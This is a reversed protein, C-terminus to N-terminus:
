STALDAYAAELSAIVISTDRVYEMQLGTTPDAWVTCNPAPLVPLEIPDLQTTIPEKLKYTVETINDAFWQKIAAATTIGDVYVYLWNKDPTDSGARWASIGESGFGVGDNNRKAQFRDSMILSTYDDSRPLNDCPTYMRNSSGSARSWNQSGDLTIATVRQVLERDYWAWGERTSPRLYTLALTDKTGNPLSRLTGDYLPVAILGVTFPAYDTRTSGLELQQNTIAATSSLRVYAIGDPITLATSYYYNGSDVSAEHLQRIWSKSSDYGHLRIRGGTGRLMSLCYTGPLVASYNETYHQGNEIGTQGSPGIYKNEVWVTTDLLNKGAFALTPEDVSVIPVPADPTPTGAQTSKGDVGLSLTPAGYADSAQMLEGSLDNRLQNGWLWKVETKIGDPALMEDTISGPEAPDGTDGKPGQPGREGQEGQPGQPGAPGQPGQTGQEGDEVDFTKTTIGTAADDYTIAVEHGTPTDTIAVQPAYASGIYETMGGLELTAGDEMSLTIPM